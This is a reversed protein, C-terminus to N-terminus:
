VLKEFTGETERLFGLSKARKNLRSLSARPVLKDAVEEFRYRPPLKKWHESQGTTLTFHVDTDKPPALEFGGWNNESLPVSRMLIPEMHEGRRIGNIVKVGDGEDGWSDIGLRVDCRNLIDSHGCVDDLWDRPDTLLDPSSLAKRDRKRLNFTSLIAARPYKSLIMRLGRYVALVSSGKNFDINVLMALPDIIVLASPKAGLCTEIFKFRDEPKKSLVDLLTKTHPSEASDNQLYPELEDPVRPYGVGYRKCINKLGKKYGPGSSEFDIVIVHRKPVKLGCWSIGNIACVTIDQGMPTKGLGYRGALVGLESERMIGEIVEERKECNRTFFDDADNIGAVLNEPKHFEDTPTEM